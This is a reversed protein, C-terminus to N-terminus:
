AQRFPTRLQRHLARRAGEPDTGTICRLHGGVLGGVPPARQDRALSVRQNLRDDDRISEPLRGIGQGVATSLGGLDGM